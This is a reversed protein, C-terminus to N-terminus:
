VPYRLIAALSAGDPIDARRVGLVRGGNALAQGAVADVVGYSAASAAEALTIAGTAPDYTGPVTEDIDVLMQDVAGFAAARAADSLDTTARGANRRQDFLARFADIEKAHLADLGQRAAAALDADPTRDPSAAITGPVLDHATSVAHFISAMPESAALFLPAHLHALLPRLAADVQRAYQTLRVKKGESGHIRQSHSRDNISAKGVSSAADRPMGPVRIEVPPGEPLVELLRVANESLALVLAVHPFTIARLLPKMHFRDSVEVQANLRNALRFTRISDPTALVCLSEAQLAWFEADDVLDQLHEELAPLRGRAPNAAAVQAAADRALNGYEIRMADAQQSLPTTRMTISVCFDARLEALRRFQEPTPIDLHLM